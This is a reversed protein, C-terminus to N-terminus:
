LSAGIPLAFAGDFENSYICVAVVNCCVAVCQLVSCCAAACYLVSCCVAVCVAFVCRHPLPLLPAVDPEDVCICAAVRPLLWM